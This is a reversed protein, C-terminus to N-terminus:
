ILNNGDNNVNNIQNSLSEHIHAHRDMYIQATIKRKPIEITSTSFIWLLRRFRFFFHGSNNFRKIEIILSQVFHWVDRAPIKSSVHFIVCEMWIWIWICIWHYQEIFYRMRCWIGRKPARTFEGVFSATKRWKRLELGRIQFSFINSIIFIVFFILCRHHGSNINAYFAHHKM